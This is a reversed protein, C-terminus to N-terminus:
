GSKVPGGRQRRHEIASSFGSRGKADFETVADPNNFFDREAGCRRCRAGSTPGGAPEVM